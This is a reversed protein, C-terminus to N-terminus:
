KKKAQKGGANMVREIEEVSMGRELMSKKVENDSRSKVVEHWYYAVIAVIPISFVMILGISEPNQIIKDWM